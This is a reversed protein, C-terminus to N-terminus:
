ESEGGHKLNHVDRKLQEIQSSLQKNSALIQEIVADQRNINHKLNQVIINYKAQWDLNKVIEQAVEKEFKTSM